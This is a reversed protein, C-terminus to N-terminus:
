MFGFNPEIGNTTQKNTKYKNIIKIYLKHRFKHKM